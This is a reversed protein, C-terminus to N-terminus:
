HMFQFLDGPLKLNLFDNSNLYDSNLRGHLKAEGDRENQSRVGSYYLIDNNNLM